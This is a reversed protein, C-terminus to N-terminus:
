SQTVFPPLISQECLARPGSVKRARGFVCSVALLLHIGGEQIVPERQREAMVVDCSPLEPRRVDTAASVPPWCGGAGPRLNEDGRTPWEGGARFGGGCAVAQPCLLCILNRFQLVGSGSFDSSASSKRIAAFKQLPSTSPPHFCPLSRDSSHLVAPLPLM